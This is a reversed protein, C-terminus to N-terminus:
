MPAENAQPPALRHLRGAAWDDLWVAYGPTGPQEDIGGALGTWLADDALDAVMRYAPAMAVQEGGAPVLNGQCVTSLSGVLATAPRGAGFARGWIGHRWRVQQVAGWRAVDNGAVDTLARRLAQGLAGQWSVPAALLADLGKAWWVGVESRALLAAWLDGGLWPALARLCARYAQAFAHPGTADAEYGCDWGILAARVPGPPLYRCFIPALRVAQLAHVDRQLAAFSAVDHHARAALGQAIRLRRYDPQPLSAWRETADNATAVAQLSADGEGLPAERAPLVVGAPSAAWAGAVERWGVQPLLGYADPARAWSAGTRQRVVRGHRDALVFRLNLTHAPALVAQAQAVDTAGPLRLYADLTPGLGYAAAWREALRRGQPPLRAPDRAGLSGEGVEHYVVRKPTRWRRRHAHARTHVAVHAGQARAARGDRVEEVVLDHNDAFAFTGSWALTRNRGVVIGPLGPVSAGLLYGAPARALAIRVELFMGPLEGVPQHPDGALLPAGSASRAGTVAWANSGGGSRTGGGAAADVDIPPVGALDDPDFGHAAPGFLRRVLAPSAGRQLVAALAREMRAQGEGQGLYASLLLGAAVSQADPPRMRGLLPRQWCPLPWRAFGEHVGRVYAALLAQAEPGLEATAQQARAAIQWRAVVDDVHALARTAFLAAQLEGRAATALTLTQLPRLRAHVQGLGCYAEALDDAVIGPTGHRDRSLRLSM